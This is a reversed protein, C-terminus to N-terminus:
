AVEEFGHVRVSCDATSSRVVVSEGAGVIVVDFKRRPLNQMMTTM